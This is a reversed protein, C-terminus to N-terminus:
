VPEARTSAALSRHRSTSIYPVQREEPLGLRWGCVHESWPVGLPISILGDMSTIRWVSASKIMIGHKHVNRGGHRNWDMHTRLDQPMTHCVIYAQTGCAWTRSAIKSICCTDLTIKIIRKGACQQHPATKHLVCGLGPTVKNWWEQSRAKDDSSFCMCSNRVMYTLLLLQWISRSAQGGSSPVSLAADRRSAPTPACTNLGASPWAKRCTICGHQVCCM